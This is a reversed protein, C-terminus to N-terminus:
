NFFICPAMMILGQSSAGTLNFVFINFWKNGLGRADEQRSGGFNKNASVDRDPIAFGVKGCFSELRPTTYHIEVPNGRM